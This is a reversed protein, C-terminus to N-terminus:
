RKARSPSTPWTARASAGTSKPMAPSPINVDQQSGTVVDLGQLDLSVRATKADKLYNHVIASITVEDGQTFFRPVVLRLMLNKRVITKQYASGVRTDSTIARATARWTTLSDPFDFRATAKGTADTTLNAAWFATDPFAKRVKPQLLREPKLQALATAPRLTTLMMRRTGAQGSFFYALSTKTNVSNYIRGYFFSMMPPTQDPAIVYIAEDVVGLSIEAAVPHGDVDKTTVSYQASEGPKYQDKAPQIEVQLKRDTAPVAISKSGQHMEGNIFASAGVFFNPAYEPKVPIDVTFSKAGPNLLQPVDINRGEVTVLVHDM